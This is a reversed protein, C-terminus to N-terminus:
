ASPNLFLCKCMAVRFQSTVTNMTVQNSFLIFVAKIELKLPFNKKINGQENTVSM